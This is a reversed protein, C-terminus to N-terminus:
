HHHQNHDRYCTTLTIQCLGCRRRKMRGVRITSPGKSNGVGCDPVRERIKDTVRGDTCVTESM